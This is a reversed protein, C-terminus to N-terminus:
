EWEKRQQKQWIVSDLMESFLGIKNAKGIM